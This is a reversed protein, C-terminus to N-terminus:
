CLEFNIQSCKSNKVSLKFNFFNIKRILSIAIKKYTM